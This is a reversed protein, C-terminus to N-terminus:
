FRKRDKVPVGRIAAYLELHEKVTVNKWLADHQPCYGLIQFADSQSNTVSFGGIKCSGKTPGSEGTIIKM